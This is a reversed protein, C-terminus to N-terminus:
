KHRVATQMACAANFAAEASPFTCMIEDGITKILVGQFPTIEHLMTAICWSTLRHAQTDGVSDYLATSGCIDAFLVALKEIQQSMTYAIKTSSNIYSCYFSNNSQM